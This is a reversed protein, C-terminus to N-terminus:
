SRSSETVPSRRRSTLESSSFQTRPGASINAFGVLHEVAVRSQEGLHEGVEGHVGNNVREPVTTSAMNLYHRCRVAVVYADGKTVVPFTHHGFVYAFNEFRKKCRAAAQSSGTKAEINNEVDHGLLEASGNRYM